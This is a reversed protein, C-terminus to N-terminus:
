VTKMAAYKAAEREAKRILPLERDLNRQKCFEKMHVEGDAREGVAILGLGWALHTQVYNELSFRRFSM